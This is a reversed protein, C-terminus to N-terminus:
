VIYCFVDINHNTKGPSNLIKEKYIQRRVSGEPALKYFAEGASDKWVVVGLDTDLIEEFSNIPLSFTKVALFSNMSARYCFYLFMAMLFLIVFVVKM